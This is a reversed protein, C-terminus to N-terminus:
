TELINGDLQHKMCRFRKINPLWILLVRHQCVVPTVKSATRKFTHFQSSIIQYYQLRTQHHSLSDVRVQIYFFKFLSLFSLYLEGLIMNRDGDGDFAAGFDYQGGRMRKVLDAAYTLNPDPHDGGFDELPECRIASEAPAGLEQVLIRKVYPGMVGNMADILIKKSGLYTRIKDFDFLQKMLTLYTDVSDIVEVSMVGDNHEVSQMGVISTNILGSIDGELTRYQTLVKTREFIKNTVGDPAPGGNECNYKIGFDGNPGGPNHSATLIIGGHAKHARIVSSVAPTSIIGNQAIM